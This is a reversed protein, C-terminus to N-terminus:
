PKHEVLVDLRICVVRNFVRARSQLKVLSVLVKLIPPNEILLQIFKVSLSAFMYTRAGM